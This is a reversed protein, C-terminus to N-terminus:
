PYFTDDSKLNVKVAELPALYIIDSKLLRKSSKNQERMKAPNTKM